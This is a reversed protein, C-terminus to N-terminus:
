SRLPEQGRLWAAIAGEGDLDPHWSSTPAEECSQLYDKLLALTPWHESKGYTFSIFRAAGPPAGLRLDGLTPHTEALSSLTTREEEMFTM